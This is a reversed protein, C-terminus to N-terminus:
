ELAKPWLSVSGSIRARKSAMDRSVPLPSISVSRGSPGSTNEFAIWLSLFNQLIIGWAYLFYNVNQGPLIRRAKNNRCPMFCDCEFLMGCLAFVGSATKSSRFVEKEPALLCFVFVGAFALFPFVLIQKVIQRKYFTKHFLFFIPVDKHYAKLSLVSILFFM